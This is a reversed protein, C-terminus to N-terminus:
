HSNSAIPCHHQLFKLVDKEGIKPEKCVLFSQKSIGTDWVELKPTWKFMFAELVQVHKLLKELSQVGFTPTPAVKVRRKDIIGDKLMLMDKQVVKIIEVDNPERVL